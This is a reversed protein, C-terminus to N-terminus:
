PSIFKYCYICLTAVMKRGITFTVIFHNYVITQTYYIMMLVVNTYYNDAASQSADPRTRGGAHIGSEGKYSFM